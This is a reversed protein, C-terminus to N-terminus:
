PVYLVVPGGFHQWPEPLSRSRPWWRCPRDLYMAMRLRVSRHTRPGRFWPAVPSLLVVSVHRWVVGFWADIHADGLNLGHFVLRLARM